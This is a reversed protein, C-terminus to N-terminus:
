AAKREVAEAPPRKAAAIHREMARGFDAIDEMLPLMICRDLVHAIDEKSSEESQLASLLVTLESIHCKLETHHFRLFAELSLASDAESISLSPNAM